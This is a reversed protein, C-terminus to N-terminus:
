DDDDCEEAEAMCCNECVNERCGCEEGCQQCKEHRRGCGSCVKQKTTM